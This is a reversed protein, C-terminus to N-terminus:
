KIVSHQQMTSYELAAMNTCNFLPYSNDEPTRTGASCTLELHIESSKYERFIRCQRYESLNGCEFEQSSYSLIKFYATATDQGMREGEDESEM